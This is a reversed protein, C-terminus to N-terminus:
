LHQAREGDNDVLVYIGVVLVTMYFRFAAEQGNWLESQWMAFWEGGIAMFGVFWTLFGLTVGVATFSKARQFAARSATVARAMMWTAIAFALCTLGEALIILAYATRQAEESRIARWKLTSEPLITDMALVHHMFMWNSGYDTVNGFTVLFAFIALGATLVVKSIRLLIM